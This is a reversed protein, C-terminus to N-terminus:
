KHQNEFWKEVEEVVYVIKGGKVKQHSPLKDKLRSRFDRQSSASINYKEAFEKVTINKKKQIKEIDLGISKRIKEIQKKNTSYKELYELLVKNQTKYHEIALPVFKKPNDLADNFDIMNVNIKTLLEVVKFLDKEFKEVDKINKM